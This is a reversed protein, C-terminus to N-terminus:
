TMGKTEWYAKWESFTDHIHLKGRGKRTWRLHLYKLASGIMFAFCVNWVGVARDDWLDRITKWQERPTCRYIEMEINTGMSQVYSCYTLWWQRRFEELNLLIGCEKYYEDIFCQLLGDEHEDLIEGEASTVSAQMKAPFHGPSCGGWDIIGCDMDDEDTRWYFANDSQLNSHQLAIMDPFNCAYMAVDDKYPITDLICNGVADLFEPDSFEPPYCSKALDGIFERWLKECMGGTRRLAERRKQPLQRPFPLSFPPPPAMSSGRVEPPVVDFRGIKDWAALRAQAKM